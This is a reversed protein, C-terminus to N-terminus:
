GSLKLSGSAVVQGDCLVQGDALLMPGLRKQVQVSVELREGSKPRRVVAFDSIGCLMGVQQGSTGGPAVGAAKRAGEMAAVTQAICEVLAPETVFGDRVAMHDGAFVVVSRASHDNWEVLADILRMPPRHPIVDEAAIPEM